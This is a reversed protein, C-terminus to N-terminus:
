PAVSELDTSVTPRSFLYDNVVGEPGVSTRQLQTSISSNVGVCDTSRRVSGQPKALEPALQLPLLDSVALATTWCAARRGRGFSTRRSSGSQPTLREARPAIPQFM